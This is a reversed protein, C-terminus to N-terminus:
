GSPAVSTSFALSPRNAASGCATNARQSSNTAQAPPRRPGTLQNAGRRLEADALGERTERGDPGFDDRGILQGIAVVEFDAAADVALDDLV